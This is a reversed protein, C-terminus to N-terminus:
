LLSDDNNIVLINIILHVKSRAHRIPYWIRRPVIQGVFTNDLLAYEYGRLLKRICELIQVRVQNQLTLLCLKQHKARVNIRTAELERLIDARLTILKAKATGTIENIFGETESNGPMLRRLAAAM